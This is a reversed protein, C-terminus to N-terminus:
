QNGIRDKKSSVWYLWFCLGITAAVGLLIKTKIFKPALLTLIDSNGAMVFPIALIVGMLAAGAVMGCALLVGMELSNNEQNSKRKVLFNIFGGLVVPMIIDPPLYIGLGIALIPLRKDQKKLAFDIVIGIIAIVAGISIEWWPLNDGFVGRAVATMLGAQPAPLMQTQDMLPRPFVGGIGYAQFLLELVPAVVFAAVIVGLMIMLQQRFPVAGIIQGAKLDQINEGGIATMIAILTAMLIVFVIEQGMLQPTNILTLSLIFAGLLVAILMFGSLPNNTMGVLGSLYACISTLFFGLFLTFLTAFLSLAVHITLPFATEQLGLFYFFCAFSAISFVLIGGLVYHFPIDKNTHIISQLQNKRILASSISSKLGKTIPKILILLTFIGGLLMTGVGIYRIHQSWLQMAMEYPSNNPIMPYIQSLVPIGILWGLVLGVFMAISAQLGVIFGAALLAPNFGISVGFLIKNKYFWLQWNEAIFKFGTQFLSILGAVLGGMMLFFFQQTNEFSTKLVQGIATGEPFVLDKHNLLVSRLPISFFLGLMGGIIVMVVTQWYLFHSWFGTIILAPLIFSVAAAVGEGASAATQVLNSEFINSDKFFRLIAMSLVAAPISAAITHGLKLALYINAAALIATLLISLIICRITFESRNSHTNNSM